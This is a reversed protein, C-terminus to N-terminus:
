HRRNFSLWFSFGLNHCICGGYHGRLGPLTSHRDVFCFMDVLGCMYLDVGWAAAIRSTRGEFLLDIVSELINIIRRSPFYHKLTVSSM